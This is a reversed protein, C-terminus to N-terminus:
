LILVLARSRSAKLILGGTLGRGGPVIPLEAWRCRGEAGPGGREVRVRVDLIHAAQRRQGGGVLQWLPRESVVPARRLRPGRDACPEAATCLAQGDGEPQRGARELPGGEPM